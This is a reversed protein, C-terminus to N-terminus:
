YNYKIVVDELISIEIVLCKTFSIKSENSFVNILLALIFKRSRKVVARL